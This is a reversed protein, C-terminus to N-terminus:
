ARGLTHAYWCQGRLPCEYCRPDGPICITAGHDILAWNFRRSQESDQPAMQGAWAIVRPSRRAQDPFSIGFYRGLVRLVNSDIVTASEGFAFVRVATSVYPGVGPLALLAKQDQPVVGNHRAILAHQLDWFLQGRWRLGLREFIHMVADRGARLLDEPGDYKSVFNSYVPAVQDARTRQLMIEVALIHYPNRSSRWPFSRGHKDFWSLLRNTFTYDAPPLNKWSFPRPRM